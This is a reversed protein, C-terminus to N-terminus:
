YAIAQVKKPDPIRGNPTIIHGLVKLHTSFFTCKSPKFQKGVQSAREFIQAYQDLADSDSMSRLILDDVYPRCFVTQNDSSGTVNGMLFDSFTAQMLKQFTVGAPKLGFPM